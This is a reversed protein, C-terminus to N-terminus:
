GCGVTLPHYTGLLWVGLFAGTSLTAVSVAFVAARWSRDAFWVSVGGLLFGLFLAAVALVLSILYIEEGTTTALENCGEWRGSVVAATFAVGLALWGACVLSLAVKSSGAM